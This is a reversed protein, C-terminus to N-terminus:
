KEVGSLLPHQSAYCTPRGDSQDRQDVHRWKPKRHLSAEFVMQELVLFPSMAVELGDSGSPSHSDKRGTMM